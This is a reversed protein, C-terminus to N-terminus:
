PCKRCAVKLYTSFADSEKCRFLNRDAAKDRTNPLLDYLRLASRAPDALPARASGRWSNALTRRRAGGVRLARAARAASGRARREAWLGPVGRPPDQALPLACVLEPVRARRPSRVRHAAPFGPGVGLTSEAWCPQLNPLSTGPGERRQWAFATRDMLVVPPSSKCGAGGPWTVRLPSKRARVRGLVGGAGCRADAGPTVPSQIGELSARCASFGLLNRREGSQATSSKQKAAEM